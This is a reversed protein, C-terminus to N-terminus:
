PVMELVEQGAFHVRIEDDTFPLPKLERGAYLQTQINYYPADRRDTNGLPMISWTQVPDSMANFFTYASGINCTLDSEGFPDVNCNFMSVAPYQGSAVPFRGGRVIAHFLGYPIHWTGFAEEILESSAALADLMESGLTEDLDDLTLELLHAPFFIEGSFELAWALFVTPMASNIDPEGNWDAMEDLIPALRAAEPHDAGWRAGAERLLPALVTAAIMTGETTLAVGEDLSMPDSASLAQRARWARVTDERDLVLEASPDDEPPDEDTGTTTWPPNNCNQVFGATPDRLQPLESLPVVDDATWLTARTTGDLPHRADVEGRRRPVRAHWVYQVSGTSDAAVSNFHGLQLRALAATFDDLDDAQVMELFQRAMDTQGFVSLFYALATENEADYHVIPGHLSWRLTESVVRGDPLHFDAQERRFPVSEGDLLYAEPDDPDLALAYTDAQDAQNWTWTWAVRRNRGFVPVPLGVFSGGAAEFSAARVHFEYMRWEFFWPMHPDGALFAVGPETRAGSLAWGNSGVLDFEYDSSFSLMSLGPGLGGREGNARQVQPVFFFLRGLGIVWAPEIPEAWEPVGDPHAAMYANVGSAFGELYEAVPAPTDAWAAEVDSVLRLLRMTRDVSLMTEGEIETRRGQATWLSTLLLDLQDEAVAWGLGYGAARDSTALVHPVGWRDRVVRVQDGPLPALDVGDDGDLEGDVPLDGPEGAADTASDGADAAVDQAGSTDSDLVDAGNGTDAAVDVLADRGGTDEPDTGCASALAALFLAPLVPGYQLKM